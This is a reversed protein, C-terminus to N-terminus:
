QKVHSVPSLADHRDTLAVTIRSLWLSALTCVISLNSMLLGAINHFSPEVVPSATGLWYGLCVCSIRLPLRFELSILHRDRHSILGLSQNSSHTYKHTHEIVATLASSNYPM